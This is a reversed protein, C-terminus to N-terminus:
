ILDGRIPGAIVVGNETRTLNENLPITNLPDQLLIPKYKSTGTKKDIGGHYYIWYKDKLTEAVKMENQSWVFRLRPDGSGKVEIFRDFHMNKSKGNFSEIDYGANTKLKGVPKVCSAEVPHGLDKLRKREYDLALQEAYNGLKKKEALWELLNEETYGFENIFTSVTDVYIKQVIYGDKTQKLLGLQEMTGVIWENTGFPIGDVSSWTYTKKKESVAFCKLCQKVVKKFRGDFFNRILFKKQLTSLDYISRPNFDLFIYGEDSILVQTKGIMKMLGIEVSFNITISHDPMRGEVAVAKCHKILTKIAVSEGEDVLAKATILVRNLEAIHQVM